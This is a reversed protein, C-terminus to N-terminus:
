PLACTRTYQVSITSLYIIGIYENTAPAIRDVTIFAWEGTTASLDVTMSVEVQRFNLSLTPIAPTVTFDASNFFIPSPAPAVSGVLGNNPVIDLSLGLAAQNGAIDLVSDVLMHVVITVPQTRDMDIPIDFNGGVAFATLTSPTMPWALMVVNSFNFPQLTVIGGIAGSFLMGPDLFLEGLGCSAAAGTAGTSGAVGTAGTAGTSGTSGTAGTPAGSPGTAGTAGTAGTPAGSPGTVGTSGTAGTSGSRGRKGRDGKKGRPCKACEGVPRQEFCPNACNKLVQHAASVAPLVNEDSRAIKQQSFATAHVVTVIALTLLRLCKNSVLM